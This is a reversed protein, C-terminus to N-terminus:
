ALDLLDKLMEIAELANPRKAPDKQLLRLVFADVGGPLNPNKHSPPVPQQKLHMIAVKMLDGDPSV